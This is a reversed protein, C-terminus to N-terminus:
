ADPKYTEVGMGGIYLHLQISIYDAQEVSNDEGHLEDIRFTICDLKGNDIAPRQSMCARHM